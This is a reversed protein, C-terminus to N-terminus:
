GYNLKFLTFFLFYCFTNKSQFSRCNDRLISKYKYFSREVDWFVIPTYKFCSIDEPTLEEISSNDIM